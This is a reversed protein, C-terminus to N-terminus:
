SRVFNERRPDSLADMSKKVLTAGVALWATTVLIRGYNIIEPGYMHPSITKLIQEPVILFFM